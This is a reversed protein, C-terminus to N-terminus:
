PKPTEGPEPAEAPLAAASPTPKRASSFFLIGAGLAIALTVGIWVLKLHAPNRFRNSPPPASIGPEHEKGVIQGPEKPEDAPASVGPIRPQAPKFPDLVKSEPM